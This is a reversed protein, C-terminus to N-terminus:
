VKLQGAIGTHSVKRSCSNLFILSTCSHPKGLTLFMAPPFIAASDKDILTTIESAAVGPWWLVAHSVSTARTKLGPPSNQSCSGKIDRSTAGSSFDTLTQGLRSICQINLGIRKARYTQNEIKDDHTGPFWWNMSLEEGLFRGSHEKPLVTLYINQTPPWSRRKQGFKSHFHNVILTELINRHLTFTSIFNHIPTIGTTNSWNLKMHLNNKQLTLISATVPTKDPITLM